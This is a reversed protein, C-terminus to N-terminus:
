RGGDPGELPLRLAGVRRRTAAGAVTAAIALVVSAGVHMAALAPRDERLLEAGELAFTSFTTLGGCFGIGVGDRVWWEWSPHLSEEALAVGVVFSGVVNIVFLPWAFGGGLDWMELVGWRCTAGIMGGAAIALPATRRM